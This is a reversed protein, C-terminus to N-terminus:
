KSATIARSWEVTSIVNKSDIYELIDGYIFGKACTSSADSVVLATKISFRRECVV